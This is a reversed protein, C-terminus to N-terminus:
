LKSILKDSKPSHLEVVETAKEYTYNSFDSLQAYAIGEQKNYWVELLVSGGENGPKVEPNVDKGSLYDILSQRCSKCLDQMKHQLIVNGGEHKYGSKYLLLSFIGCVIITAGLGKNVFLLSVGAVLIVGSIILDKSTHVKKFIRKM